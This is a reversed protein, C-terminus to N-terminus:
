FMYTLHYESFFGVEGGVNRRHGKLHGLRYCCTSYVTVGKGKGVYAMNIFQM